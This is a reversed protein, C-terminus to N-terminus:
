PAAPAIDPQRDVSELGKLWERAEQIEANLSEDGAYLIVVSNFLATATKADRTAVEQARTLVGRVYEKRQTAVRNADEIIEEHWREALGREPDSKNGQQLIALLAEVRTRAEDLQGLNWLRRIEALHRLSESPTDSKRERRRPAILTQELEYVNIENMLTEIEDSLKEQEERPLASFAPSSLLPVLGEDRARIWEPGAPHTLIERVEAVRAMPTQRPTAMWWVFAVLGILLGVLVFTNNFVRQIPTPDASHAVESRVLDRMFTAAGPLDPSPQVETRNEARTEQDSTALSTQRRRLVDQLQRSAVFADPPRKEPSKELLASVVTDVGPPLGPVYRSPLDFQAFRQKHMVDMATQGTFPPRGTIMVYLLAGLSYLDSRKTARQGQAQEPSMYEATGIVGGTITLRESAFLQAVGFDTLKVDGNKTLLVNSPKLDRHVIGADHAAKLASCLQVGIELAREWSVRHERRLLDALNEGDVYEMVFYYTEDDVGSDLLRVVHPNTLARHMEAERTFRMVFGEERALTAPLVKVAALVHTERHRALYVTGMGGAGIEELLQYPGLTERDM